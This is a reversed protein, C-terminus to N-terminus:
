ENNMGLVRTWDLDLDLDADRTGVNPIGGRACVWVWRKTRRRGEREVAVERSSANQLHIRVQVTSCKLYQVLM